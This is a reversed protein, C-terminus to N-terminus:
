IMVPLKIISILFTWHLLLRCLLILRHLLLLTCFTKMTFQMMGSTRLQLVTIMLLTQTVMM